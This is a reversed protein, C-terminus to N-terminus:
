KRFPPIRLIGRQRTPITRHQPHLPHLSIGCGFLHISANRALSFLKSKSRSRTNGKTPHREQSSLNCLICLDHEVGLHPAFEESNTPAHKSAGLIVGRRTDFKNTSLICLICLIHLDSVTSKASTGLNEWYEWNKGIKRLKKQFFVFKSTWNRITIDHKKRIWTVKKIVM